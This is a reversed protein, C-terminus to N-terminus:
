VTDIQEIQRKGELESLVERCRRCLSPTGSSPVIIKAMTRESALKKQSRLQLLTSMPVMAVFIDTNQLSGMEIVTATAIRGVLIKIKRCNWASSGAPSHLRKRTLGWMACRRM